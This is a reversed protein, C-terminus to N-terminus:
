VQVQSHLALWCFRSHKAPNGMQYRWLKTGSSVDMSKCRACHIGFRNCGGLFLDRWSTLKPPVVSVFLISSGCEAHAVIDAATYYTDHDTCSFVLMFSCCSRGQSSVLKRGYEDVSLSIFSPEFLPPFYPALSTDMSPLLGGTREHFTQLNAVLKIRDITKSWRSKTADTTEGGEGPPPQPAPAAALPPSSDQPVSIRMTRKPGHYQRQEEQPFPHAFFNDGDGSDDQDHQLDQASPLADDDDDKQTAEELREPRYGRLLQFTDRFREEDSFSSQENDQDDTALSVRNVVRRWSARPDFIAPAQPETNGYDETLRKRRAFYHANEAIPNSM